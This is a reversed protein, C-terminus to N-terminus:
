NLFNLCEQKIQNKRKKYESEWIILVEYGCTELQRIRKEDRERIQRATSESRKNKFIYDDDYKNSNAHWFDGYFEIIKNGLKFDVSIVKFDSDNFYFMEERNLEAFKCNEKVEKPISEYIDWFLEQSIKSYGLKLLKKLSQITKEQKNIYKDNGLVEGYKKKYYEISNFYSMRSCSKLYLEKGKEKGYKKIFYFLSNKDMNKCYEKWKLSGVENGFNKIYYDLSFRFSQKNRKKNWIEFGKYKGNKKQLEFLTLGNSWGNKKEISSRWNKLYKVWKEEGLKEGHRKKMVDLGISRKSNNCKEYAKLGEESGLKLIFSELNNTTKKTKQIWIDYGVDEGYRVQFSYLSSSDHKLKERIIKLREAWNGDVNYKLFKYVAEKNEIKILFKKGFCLILDELQGEQFSTLSDKFESVLKLKMYEELEKSM